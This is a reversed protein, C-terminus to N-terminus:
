DGSGFDDEGLVADITGPANGELRNNVFLYARRKSAIARRAIVRLASRAAPNPDQVQSYPQFRAVADEYSRGFRLLARTVVFDATEIGPAQMQSGLEPMRTWANLVHAVGHRRLCALYASGLFEPNRIEVAYRWGPDLQSLFRDLDGAFEEEHAYVSRPFAGFEFILVAVRSRFPGLPELFLRSFLEANLFADNEMGARPGYRAHSPWTRVTIEEPVKFAFELPPPASAFLRSWYDPAPFQYFSFDGCVVPFVAAYEALCTEEFKRRSFKGRTQYRSPTYIQGIWGEYKWSSTGFYVGKEAAQKVKAALAAAFGPRDPPNQEHPEFLWLNEM